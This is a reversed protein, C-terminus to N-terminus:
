KSVSSSFHRSAWGVAFGALVALGVVVSASDAYAEMARAIDVALNSCETM